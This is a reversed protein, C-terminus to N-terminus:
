KAREGRITVEKSVEEAQCLLGRTRPTILKQPTLLTGDLDIAILRYM